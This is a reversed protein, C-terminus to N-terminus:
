HCHPDDEDCRHWRHDHWYRHHDRDYYGERPQGGYYGGDDRQYGEHGPAVVCGGLLGALSLIVGCGSVARIIRM